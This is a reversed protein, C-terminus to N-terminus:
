HRLIFLFPNSVEWETRNEYLAFAKVRELYQDIRDQFSPDTPNITFNVTFEFYAGGSEALNSIKEGFLIHNPVKM